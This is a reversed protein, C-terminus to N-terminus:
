GIMDDDLAVIEFGQCGKSVGVCTFDVNDVNIGRVIGAVFIKDIIVIVYISVIVILM